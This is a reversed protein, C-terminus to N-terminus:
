HIQGRIEGGPNTVSGVSVYAQGSEILAVFDNVTKGKLPGIFASADFGGSAVTGTFVGQGYRGSLLILVGPGTSGQAGQHVRSSDPDTLDSVSLSFRIRTGTADVTFTAVGSAQTSVPPVMEGGSLEATYTKEEGPGGTGTTSTSSPSAATSSTATTTSM